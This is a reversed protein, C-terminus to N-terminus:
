RSSDIKGLWSGDTAWYDKNSHCLCTDCLDIYSAQLKQLTPLISSGTFNSLEVSIPEKADTSFCALRVADMVKKPHGTSDEDQDSFTAYCYLITLDCILVNYFPILM